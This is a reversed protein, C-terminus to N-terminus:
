IPREADVTDDEELIAKLMRLVTREVQAIEDSTWGPTVRLRSTCDALASLPNPQAYCQSLCDSVASNIKEPPASSVPSM